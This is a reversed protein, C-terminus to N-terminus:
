FSEDADLSDCTFYDGGVVKGDVQNGPEAVPTRDHHIVRTQDGNRYKTVLRCDPEQDAVGGLVACEGPVVKLAQHRETLDGTVKQLVGPACARCASLEAIFFQQMERSENS